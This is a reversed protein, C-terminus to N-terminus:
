LGLTGLTDWVLIVVLVLLALYMYRSEKDLARFLGDSDYMDRVIGVFADSVRQVLTSLSLNGFPSPQATSEPHPLTYATDM